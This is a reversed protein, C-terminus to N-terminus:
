VLALVPVVRREDDRASVVAGSAGLMMLGAFSAASVVVLTVNEPVASASLTIEESKEPAVAMAVPPAHDNEKVSGCPM